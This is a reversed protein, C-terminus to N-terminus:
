ANTEEGVGALAKLHAPAVIERFLGKIEGARLANPSPFVGPEVLHFGALDYGTVVLETCIPFSDAAYHFQQYFVPMFRRETILRKAIIWLGEPVVKFYILYDYFRRAMAIAEVPARASIAASCCARYFKVDTKNYWSLLGVTPGKPAISELIVWDGDPLSMWLFGFHVRDTPPSVLHRVAFGLPGNGRNGFFDGPRFLTTPWASYVFM